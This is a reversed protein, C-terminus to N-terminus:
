EHWTALDEETAVKLYSTREHGDMAGERRTTGNGFYEFRNKVANSRREFVFDEWRPDRLVDVRHYFSGPWSILIRSKGKERKFWSNCTDMVVKGDFAGGVIDNFDRTADISPDLSAYSQSQIKRICKAIYTASIEIHLPVSAGRANGQAQLVTFYNPYGPAMVGLYSEPYGPDGNPGWKERLDIGDKGVVPFRSGFGNEFGTATIILDVGRHKGDATLIGTEDVELIPSTIYEVKESKLAELYGPAPTLRKCGPSYDPLVRQLWDEDGSLRELMCKTIRERLAANKESGIEDASSDSHFKAELERRYKIYAEPDKAFLDRLEQDYEPGGPADAQAIHLDAAFTPTVWTKTRVYHDLHEVSGLINPLIQQGSAGNGIVAVRKGRVDYGQQWRATHVVDGQFRNFLGPTTPHKPESIRGQSNVLFDATEVFVAGTQTDRIEVVWQFADKLWTARLVEHQLKFADTLGYKEVVDEYYKQIEAGKPYYESWNTNPSFSLEVVKSQRDYVTISSNAVKRSLLVASAVGAIGAGVGIIKM